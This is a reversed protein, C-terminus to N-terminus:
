PLTSAGPTEGGAILAHDLPFGPESGKLRELPPDPGHREPPLVLLPGFRSDEKYEQRIRKAVPRNAGDATGGDVPVLWAFLRLCEPCNPSSPSRASPRM